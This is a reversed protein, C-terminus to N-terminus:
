AEDCVTLSTSFINMVPGPLRVPKHDRNVSAIRVTATAILDDTEKRRVIHSFDISARGAKLVATEVVLIDGYRGPQRYDVSANVVVFNMGKKMLEKLTVGYSELYETRAREFYKFYNGYYVVGGCDTDEYYIKIEIQHAM